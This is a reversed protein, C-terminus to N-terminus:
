ALMGKMKFLLKNTDPRISILDLSNVSSLLEIEQMFQTATQINPSGITLELKKGSIQLAELSGTSGLHKNISSFLSFFPDPNQIVQDLSKVEQKLVAQEEELRNKKDILQNLSSVRQERAKREQRVNRLTKWQVLQITVIAVTTALCLILSGKREWSSTSSRNYVSKKAFNIRNM